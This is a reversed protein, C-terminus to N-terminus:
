VTRLSRSLLLDVIITLSPAVFLLYMGSDHEEVRKNASVELLAKSRENIVIIDNRGMVHLTPTAYSPSM